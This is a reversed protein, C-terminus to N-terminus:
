GRGGYREDGRAAHDAGQTKRGSALSRPIRRDDVAKWEDRGDERARERAFSGVSLQARHDFAANGELRQNGIERGTEDIEIRGEDVAGDFVRLPADDLREVDIAARQVLDRFPVALEREGM